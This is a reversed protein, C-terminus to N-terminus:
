RSLRFVRGAKRLACSRTAAAARSCPTLVTGAGSVSGQLTRCDPEVGAGPAALVPGRLAGLGAALVGARMWPYWFPM